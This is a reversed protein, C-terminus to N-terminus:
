RRLVDVIVNMNLAFIAEAGIDMAIAAPPMIDGLKQLNQSRNTNWAALTGPGTEGRM